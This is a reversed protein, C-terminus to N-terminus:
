LTEPWGPRSRKRVKKLRNEGFRLFVVEPRVWFISFDVPKILKKTEPRPAPGAIPMMRQVNKKTDSEPFLSFYCPKM